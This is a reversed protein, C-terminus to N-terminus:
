LSDTQTNSHFSAGVSSRVHMILPAPTPTTTPLLPTFQMSPTHTLPTLLVTTHTQTQTHDVEHGALTISRRSDTQSSHKYSSDRYPKVTSYAWIQDHQSSATPASNGKARIQQMFCNTCRHVHQHSVRTSSGMCHEVVCLGSLLVPCM